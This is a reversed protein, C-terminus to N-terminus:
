EGNQSLVPFRKKEIPEGASVVQATGTLLRKDGLRHRFMRSGIKETFFGARHDPLNMRLGRRRSGHQLFLNGSDRYTSMKVAARRQLAFDVPHATRM